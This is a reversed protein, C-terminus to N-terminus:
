HEHRPVRRARGLAWRAGAAHRPVARGSDNPEWGQRALFEGLLENKEGVCRRCRMVACSSFLRRSTMAEVIATSFASENLLTEQTITTAEGKTSTCLFADGVHAM